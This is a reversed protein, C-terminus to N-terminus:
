TTRESPPDNTPDQAGDVIAKLAAVHVAYAARGHPTAALRTRMRRGVIDKDVTVYGAGELTSLHASLNGDTFGLLDRLRKFEVAVGVPCAVLSAMIRLRGAAHIVPDLDPTM